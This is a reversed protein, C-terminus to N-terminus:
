AKACALDAFAAAADDLNSYTFEHCDCADVLRTVADFGRQGHVQYNFSQEAIFLCTRAKSFAELRAPAGAAYRPFVIWAPRARETVRQVSDAPPRLLAVTGKATHPVRETMVADPVFRRIVDISENKLNIPRALPQVWGSEIDVLALEDSLLRWGRHVLGACLTSKGSGPPAPLIVARGEREIVAAHIILFQHCHAAICWNLGWELMPYAQDFPLPNFSPQGDFYFYVKPRIWRRLGGSAAVRVHFDAFEAPTKLSFEGYMAGIARAVSPLTSQVRAVFPSFHILLDGRGLRTNLEAPDLESIKL